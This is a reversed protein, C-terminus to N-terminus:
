THFPASGVKFLLAVLILLIGSFLFLDNKELILSFLFEFSTVGFALYVLSFGLLMFCSNVAGFIFYKLGAETTFESNRNFTAFVYFALSQLEIALYFILSDDAFCLCCGSLVVFIFLIDYEYKNINRAELFDRTAFLTLITVIFFIAQINQNFFYLADTYSFDFCFLFFNCLLFFLSFSSFSSLLNPYALTTDSSVFVGYLISNMLYVSLSFITINFFSANNLCDFLGM